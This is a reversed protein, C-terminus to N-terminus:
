TRARRNARRWAGVAAPLYRLLWFPRRLYALALGTAGRRALPDWARMFVRPPVLARVLFRAKAAAGPLAMLWALGQAVPPATAARLAVDGPEETELSLRRVLDTGAPLLTLGAVFAPLAGLRGALTAAERWRAEPLRELGRQLDELTRESERGHQAAHLALHLTRAAGDLMMVRTGALAVEETEQSLVAWAQENSVGIGTLSEHLELVITTEPHEWLQRYPRGPGLASPGLYRLGVALLAADIAERDRGAVLLDVDDSRREDGDYLWRRVSAGKLLVSEVGAARLATVIRATLADNVLNVGESQARGLRSSSSSTVLHM